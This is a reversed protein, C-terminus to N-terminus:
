RSPEEAAKAEIGFGRLIARAQALLCCRRCNDHRGDAHPRTAFTSAHLDACRCLHRAAEEYNEQAKGIAKQETTTM